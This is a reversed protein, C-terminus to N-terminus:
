SGQAARGRSRSQVAVVAFAVMGLAPVVLPVFQWTLVAALGVAVLLHLAAAPDADLNDRLGGVANRWGGERTWVGAAMLVATGVIGLGLYGVVSMLTGAATPDAAALGIAFLAAAAVGLAAVAIGIGGWLADRFDRWVASAPSGEDNTFRRLHRIGAVLAAPLTLVPLALATVVAGTLLAEGFLAFRGVTPRATDKAM